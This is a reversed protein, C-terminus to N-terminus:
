SGGPNVSAAAPLSHMHSGCTPVKRVPRAWGRAVTDRFGGPELRRSKVPIFNLERMTRAVRRASGVTKPMDLLDLLASTSIMQKGGVAAEIKKRLPDARHAQVEAIAQQLREKLSGM